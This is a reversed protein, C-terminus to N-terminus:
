ELNWFAMSEFIDKNKKSESKNSDKSSSRASKNDHSKEDDKMHNVLKKGNEM